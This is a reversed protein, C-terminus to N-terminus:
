QKLTPRLSLDSIWFRGRIATTGPIRVFRIVLMKTASDTEFDKSIQHWPTNGVTEETTAYTSSGFADSAVVSPGNATELDDSKVWSSLTYRTNPDVPVYQYIGSDGGSGSYSILISRGSSHFESPDLAVTQTSSPYYRWDFGANLIDEAFAGNVILNDSTVYRALTPSTTVLQHWTERAVPADGSEILSNVYFLAQHYDFASHLQMLRSWANHAAATEGQKLLLKIFELHVSPDPPLINEITQTNQLMRWCVSLVPVTLSSDNRLVAAFQQLAEPVDGQVLFFNGTSWAVDPTRPDVAIAQRLAAVNEQRDGLAFYAQALDLLYVSNYPNLENAKKFAAAASQPEQAAFLLNRGLLDYYGANSPELAIARKLSAPDQKTSFRFARYARVAFWGYVCSALICAVLLLRGSIIRWTAMPENQM